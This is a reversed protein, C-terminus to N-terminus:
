TETTATSFQPLAQVATYLAAVPVSAWPITINFTQLPRKGNVWANKTAWVGVLGTLNEGEDPGGWLRMVRVHAGTLQQGEIEINLKLPM